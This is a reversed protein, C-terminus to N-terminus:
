KNILVGVQKWRSPPKYNDNDRVPGETMVYSKVPSNVISIWNIYIYCTLFVFM